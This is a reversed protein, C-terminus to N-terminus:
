LLTFLAGVYGLSFLISSWGLTDKYSAAASEPTNGIQNFLGGAGPRCVDMGVAQPNWFTCNPDYELKLKLLKAYNDKEYYLNITEETALDPDIYNLYATFDNDPKVNSVSNTLNDIFPTIADIYPPQGNITNGYNQSIM